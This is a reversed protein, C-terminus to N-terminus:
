TWSSQQSAEVPPGQGHGHVQPWAYFHVGERNLMGGGSKRCIKFHLGAFSGCISRIELRPM